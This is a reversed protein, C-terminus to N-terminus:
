CPRRRQTVGSPANAGPGEFRTRIPCPPHCQARRHPLHLHLLRRRLRRLRPPVPTPIVCDGLDALLTSSCHWRRRVSCLALRKGQPAAQPHARTTTAAHYHRRRSLWSRDDNKIIFIGNADPAADISVPTPFTSAVVPPPMAFTIFDFQRLVYGHADGLAIWSEDIPIHYRRRAMGDSNCGGDATLIKKELAVFSNPVCNDVSSEFCAPACANWHSKVLQGSVGRVIKSINDPNYHRRGVRTTLVEDTDETETMFNSLPPHDILSHIAGPEERPTGEFESTELQQRIHPAEPSLTNIPPPAVTVLAADQDTDDDDDDDDAKHEGAGEDDNTHYDDEGYTILLPSTCALIKRLVSVLHQQSLNPDSLPKELLEKQESVVAYARPPLFACPRPSGPQYSSPKHHDPAGSRSSRPHRDRM